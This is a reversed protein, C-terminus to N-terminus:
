LGNYKRLLRYLLRQQKISVELRSLYTDVLKRYTEQPINTWEEKAFAERRTLNSPRRAMVKTKLERRLKEIPNLDPSQGPWELVHVDSDKLWQKAGKLLSISPSMTRSTCACDPCLQLKEASATINDDMVKIYDERKM